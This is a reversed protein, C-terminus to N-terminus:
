TASPTARTGLRIKPGQLDALVAVAHATEDGAPRVRDYCRAHEDHSGHSLNLRAVDM